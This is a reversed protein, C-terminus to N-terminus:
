KSITELPLRARVEYGRGDRPGTQLDGGYLAVRERMGLIGHGGGVGYTPGRGDDIIQIDLDWKHFQIIVQARAPGAHKLVNTLSEQVVRYACLDVGPALAAEKGEIRLEVSLGAERVQALLEDLQRLSPQPALELEQDNKRLIGLSRGLEALAQRGAQEIAALVERTSGQGNGLVRREAGAQVVIVSLAHGIVDHLERAIRTREEAVARRAEDALQREQELARDQLAAALIRPRRLTRGIVWALAWFIVAPLVDGMARGTILAPVEKGLVGVAAIAAGVVAPGTDSYAAASYIVIILALFSVLPPQKSLGEVFDIVVATGMVTGLITVPARRRWVLPISLSLVLATGAARSEQFDFGTPALWVETLGLVALGLALLWDGISQARGGLRAREMDRFTALSPGPRM